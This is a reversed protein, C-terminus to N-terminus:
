QSSSSVSGQLYVSTHHRYTWRLSRFRLGERCGISRGMDGRGDGILYTGVHSSREDAGSEHAARTAIDVVHQAVVTEALGSSRHLNEISRRCRDRTNFDMQPYIGAPDQRLLGEVRSLQEFCVKWDLLDLQRLSTFANGISIQDKTQRSKAQLSLDSLSKQLKRELWSQVPALAAGEDYLYDILQSAFYPSPGSQSQTLEALISFIQQPDRRNVAILRNAWFSAIGRERLETQTRGAIQQISGHACDCCRLFPGSNGSSLPVRKIPRLSHWSTIRDLRLDSHSRTREGVTSAPAGTLSARLAPLQRYYRRPLNLLVNRANGEIIYENDLLWEAAPSVSQELRNAVTLDLCAARVRMLGREIRKLLETKKSLGLAQRHKTALHQAHEQFQVSTTLAGLSWDEMDPSECKPYLIFVAPQVEGSELLAAVPVRLTNLPAQLILVSEGSVLWRAHDEV